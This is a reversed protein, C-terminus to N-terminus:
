LACDIRDGNDLYIFFYFGNDEFYYKEQRVGHKALIARVEDSLIEHPLTAHVNDPKPVLKHHTIYM